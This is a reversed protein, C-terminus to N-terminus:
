RHTVFALVPQAEAQVLLQFAGLVIVLKLIARLGVGARLWMHGMTQLDLGLREMDETSLLKRSQSFGSAQAPHDGLLSATDSNTTINSHASTIGLGAPLIPIVILILGGLCTCSEGRCRVRGGVLCALCGLTIHHFGDGSRARGAISTMLRVNGSTWRLLIQPLRITLCM